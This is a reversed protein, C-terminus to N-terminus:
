QIRRQVTDQRIGGVDAWVKGDGDRERRWWGGEEGKEDAVQNRRIGGSGGREGRGGETCGRRGKCGGGVGGGSSGCGVGSAEEWAACRGRRRQCGTGAGRGRGTRM